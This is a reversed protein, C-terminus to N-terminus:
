TTEGGRNTHASGQWEGGWGRVPTPQDKGRELGTRVKDFDPGGWNRIHRRSGDRRDSEAFPGSRRPDDLFSRVPNKERQSREYEAIQEMEENMKEINQRRREEWEKSKRDPGADGAPGARGRSKWGRSDRDAPGAIDRGLGEWPPLEPPCEVRPSCNTPYPGARNSGRPAPSRAAKPTRRESSVVRKEGPSLSLQVSLVPSGQEGRRREPRDGESSRPRRAGTVAVGEQEAKKRDEEIEQYRKILAENKRRLAEIRRDLEADKEEKSKLELSASM